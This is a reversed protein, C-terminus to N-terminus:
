TRAPNHQHSMVNLQDFHIQPINNNPRITVQEPTALTFSVSDDRRLRAAAIASTIEDLTDIHIDNVAIMTSERLTSRWRHIRGALTSPLCEKLLIRDSDPHPSLSLGLTPHLGKLPIVITTSNGFPNPSLSFDEPVGSTM